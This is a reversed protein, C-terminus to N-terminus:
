CLSGYSYDYFYCYLLNLFNLSKNLHNKYINLIYNELKDSKM